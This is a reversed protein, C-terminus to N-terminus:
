EKIAILMKKKIKMSDEDDILEMPPTNYDKLIDRGLIYVIILTHTSPTFPCLCIYM